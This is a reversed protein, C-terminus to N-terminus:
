NRSQNVYEGRNTGAQHRARLVNVANVHSPMWELKNLLCNSVLHFIVMWSRKWASRGIMKWSLPSLVAFREMEDIM